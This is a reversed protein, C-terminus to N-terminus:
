SKRSAASPFYEVGLSTNTHFIDALFDKSSQTSIKNRFVKYSLDQSEMKLLKWWSVTYGPVVLDFKKIRKGKAHLKMYKSVIDLQIKASAKFFLQIIDGTKVFIM